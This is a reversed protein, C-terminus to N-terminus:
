RRDPASAAAPPRPTRGPKRLEAPGRGSGPAAGNRGRRLAPAAPATAAPRRSRTAPESTKLSITVKSRTLRELPELRRRAAWLELGAGRRATLRLGIRGQKRTVRVEQVLQYHSRDLGEAIRLLASLWRVTRRRAGSLARVLRDKKRPRGKGHYRAVISIMEIESASLGRLSGNRIVYASHEAHRDYGVVAGVDHLLAAFHLIERAAGDEGHLTSLGDFLALSLRAVHRAHKLHREEPQFKQLLQLVSRLRLDEVEGLTRVERSHSALYDMVLGERVGFDSITIGDADLEELVHALVVAGPILIEARRPDIGPLKERAPLSLHQLKRLLRELSDRTLIHGNLQPLAQGQDEHHALQALAHISGSSGYVTRPELAEVTQLPGAAVRRVHRKLRLLERRSPPDSELFLETLRLAGLPMSRSEILQDRNAVVLQTSGGGIDVILAPREDLRLASKVGLYILRGEEEPPIVRPTIGAGERAAEIFSGGNKAERVAATATCLIRDVQQRRALDVFRALAEVSRRIADARLRGGSFSGRGIQVVERERDALEFGAPTSRAIVMHISNTGIDIAAIRM